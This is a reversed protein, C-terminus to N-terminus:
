KNWILVVLLIKLLELAILEIYTYASFAETWVDADECKIVLAWFCPLSPLYWTQIQYGKKCLNHLDINNYM